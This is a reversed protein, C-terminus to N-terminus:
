DIYKRILLEDGYGKDREGIIRIVIGYKNNKEIVFEKFGSISTANTPKGHLIVYHWCIKGIYTLEKNMFIDGEWVHPDNFEFYKLHLIYNGKQNIEIEGLMKNKDFGYENVFSYSLWKGTIKKYQIYTKIRLYLRNFIFALFGALASTFLGIIIDNRYSSLAFPDVSYCVYDLLIHNTM